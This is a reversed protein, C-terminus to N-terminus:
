KFFQIIYAPSGGCAKERSLKGSLPKKGRMKSNLFNYSILPSGGCANERSLIGSM